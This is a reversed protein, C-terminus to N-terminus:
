PQATAGSAAPPMSHIEAGGLGETDGNTQPPGSLSSLHGTKTKYRVWVCKHLREQTEWHRNNWAAALLPPCPLTPGAVM